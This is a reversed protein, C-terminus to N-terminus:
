EEKPAVALVIREFGVERAVAAVALVESCLVEPAADLSVPLRGDVESHFERLKSRLGDIDPIGIVGSINTRNYDSKQLGLSYCLVNGNSDFISIRIGDPLPLGEAVPEGPSEVAIPPGGGVRLALGDIRLKPDVCLQLLKYFAGYNVDEGLQIALPQIPGGQSASERRADSIAQLHSILVHVDTSGPASLQEGSCEIAGTNRVELVHLSHLMRLRLLERRLLLLEMEAHGGESPVGTREHSEVLERMKTRAEAEVEALRAELTTETGAPEVYGLARLRKELMQIEGQRELQRLSERQHLETRILDKLEPSRDDHVYGLSELDASEEARRESLWALAADIAAQSSGPSELDGSAEARHEKLWVIAAAIAASSPPSAPEHLATLEPAKAPSPEVEPGACAFAVLMGSLWFVVITGQARSRRRPNLLREVREVLASPQEAMGAVLRTTPRGEIWTAVEALCRALALEGRTWRASLEDCRLEAAEIARATALSLLPQMWLVRRLVYLALLWWPDRRALHALEHGLLSELEPAGLRELARQPVVIEGRALAIPSALSSSTSLRPCGRLGALAAVRQLAEMPTGAELSRRSRLVRALRAHAWALQALGIAAGALWLGLLTSTLSPWSGRTTAPREHPVSNTAVSTESGPALEPTAPTDHAQVQPAPAASPLGDISSSAVGRAPMEWSWGFSATPLALVLLSTAFGGAISGRWLRERWIASDVRRAVLWAGGIWLTSHILFTALWGLIPSVFSPDALQV